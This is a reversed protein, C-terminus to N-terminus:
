GKEMCNHKVSLINKRMAEKKMKGGLRKAKGKGPM